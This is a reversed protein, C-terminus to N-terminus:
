RSTALPPRPAQDIQWARGRNTTRVIANTGYAFIASGARDFHDVRARNDAVSFQGGGSARRIGRPGALLVTDGSTIM